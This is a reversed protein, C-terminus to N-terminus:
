TFVVGPIAEEEDATSFDVEEGVIWVRDDNGWVGNLTFTEPIATTQWRHGNWTAVVGSTEGDAAEGAVVAGVAWLKDGRGWIAKLWSTGPIETSQWTKGDWHAVVGQGEGPFAWHTTDGVVWLQQDRGWIGEFSSDELHFVQRWASGDWHLVVGDFGRRTEARRYGAAWLYRGKRWLDYVNVEEPIQAVEPHESWFRVPRHNKEEPAPDGTEPQRNELVFALFIIGISALIISLLVVATKIM